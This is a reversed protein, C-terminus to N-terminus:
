RLSGIIIGIIIGVIAGIIILWFRYPESNLHKQVIVSYRHKDSETNNQWRHYQMSLLQAFMKVQEEPIDGALLMPDSFADYWQLLIKENGYIHFHVAIEPEACSKALEALTILNLQTAPIHFIKPRSWMDGIALHLKEPIANKAYFDDFLKNPSGGEFYLISNNPIITELARFLTPFDTKGELEWFPQSTDLHIGKQEDKSVANFIKALWGM